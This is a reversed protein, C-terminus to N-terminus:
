GWVRFVPHVFDPLRRRGRRTLGGDEVRFGAGNIRFSVKLNLGYVRCGSSEVSCGLNM